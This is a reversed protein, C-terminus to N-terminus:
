NKENKPAVDKKAGKKKGSVYEFIKHDKHRKVYKKIFTLFAIPKGVILKGKTRLAGFGLRILLMEDQQNSKIVVIRGKEDVEAVSDFLGALYNAAYENLYKFRELQDYEVELFFKKYATHHFFAKKDDQIIKDTTIIKKDLAEKIFIEQLDTSGLIGLGEYTKRKRWFGILYSLEPSLKIKMPECQLKKGKPKQKPRL